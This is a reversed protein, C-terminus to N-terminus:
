IPPIPDLAIAGGERQDTSTGTPITIVSPPCYTSTGTQIPSSEGYGGGESNM